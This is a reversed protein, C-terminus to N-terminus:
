VASVPLQVTANLLHQPLTAWPPACPHRAVSVPSRSAAMGCTYLHLQLRSWPRTWAGYEARTSTAPSLLYPLYVRLFPVRDCATKETSRM